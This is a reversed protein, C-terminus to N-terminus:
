WFFQAEGILAEKILVNEVVKAAGFVSAVTVISIFILQIIFVKNLKKYIGTKKM